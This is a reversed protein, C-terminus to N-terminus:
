IPVNIQLAIVFANSLSGRGSPRIVYQLGPQVQFWPVIDFEYNGEIIMEYTQVEEGSARQSQRLDESYGGWVFGLGFTDDSRPPFLGQYLIAASTFFQFTQMEPPAYTFTWFATVAPSTGPPGPRYIRQDFALYYGQANYGNEGSIWKKAAGSDVYGGVKYHGPLGPSSRNPDWQLEWTFAVGSDARISFDVGHFKADRFNPHTNYAGLLIEFEDEIDFRTRFGWSSNPYTPVPVNIPISLPNGCFGLNQFKCYLPSHAFDDGWNIRGAVMNWRDEFLSQEFFMNTLHVTQSGFIQQVAFVNGIAEASLSTGARQNGSVHFEGGTWGVLKALDLNVWVGINHTYTLKRVEGGAPNGAIETLYDGLIRVGADDLRDRWGGWNGSLRKRGTPQAAPPPRYRYWDHERYAPSTPVGPPSSRWPYTDIRHGSDQASALSGGALIAAALLWAAFCAGGAACRHALAETM